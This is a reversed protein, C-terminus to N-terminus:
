KGSAKFSQQPTLIKIKQIGNKIPKLLKVDNKDASSSM